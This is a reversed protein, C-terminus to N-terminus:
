AVGKRKRRARASMYSGWNGPHAVSGMLYLPSVNIARCLEYFPTLRISEPLGDLYYRRVTQLTRGIREAIREFPIERQNVVERFRTSVLAVHPCRHRRRHKRTKAQM